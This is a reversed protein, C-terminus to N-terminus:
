TLGANVAQWNSLGYLCAVEVGGTIAQQIRDQQTILKLVDICTSFLSNNYIM